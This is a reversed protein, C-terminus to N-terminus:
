AQRATTGHIELTDENYLRLKQYAVCGPQLCRLEVFRKGGRVTVEAKTVFIKRGCEPCQGHTGKGYRELM